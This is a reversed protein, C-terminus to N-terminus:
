IAVAKSGKKLARGRINAHKNRVVCAGHRRLETSKVGQPRKVEVSVLDVTLAPRM